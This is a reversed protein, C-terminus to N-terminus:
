APCAVGLDRTFFGINPAPAIQKVLFPDLAFHEYGSKLADEYSDFTGIVDEGHILVYKGQKTLLESFNREYTKIERELTTM